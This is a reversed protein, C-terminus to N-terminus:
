YRNCYDKKSFPNNIGKRGLMPRSGIKGLINYSHHENESATCWELNELRNDNKIGNIHNVQPKNLPNDLFTIAILRHVRFQKISKRSGFTASIVEYGYKTTAKKLKRKTKSSWIEGDESAFYTGDLNPIVKM